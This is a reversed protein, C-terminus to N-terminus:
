GQDSLSALRDFAVVNWYSGELVTRLGAEWNERGDVFGYLFEITDDPMHYQPYDSANLGGAMRIIPIGVEKFRREDSNRTHEPWVKVCSAEYDLFDYYLEEQIPRLESEWNEGLMQYMKWAHGPCNIGVMDHGIVLDWTIEGGQVRDNVFYDSAVLGLEETDFFIAKLTKNNEYASLERVLEIGMAVGSGDDYAGQITGAQTDYHSVWAIAHDPNVGPKTAVVVNIGHGSETPLAIGTPAYEILETEWGLGDLESLLFDSAQQNTPSGTDRKVFTQVFDAHWDALRQTDLEPLPVDSLDPLASAVPENAESSEGPTSEEGNLCGAVMLTSALLVIALIRM